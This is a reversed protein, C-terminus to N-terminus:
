TIILLDSLLSEPAFMRKKHAKGAIHEHGAFASHDQVIDQVIGQSIGDNVSFRQLRFKDQASAAVSWWAALLFCIYYPILRKM